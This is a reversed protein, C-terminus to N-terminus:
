AKDNNTWKNTRTKQKDNRQMKQKDNRLSASSDEEGTQQRMLELSGCHVGLGGGLGGGSGVGSRGQGRMEAAEDEGAEHACALGGDAAQEGGAEVPLKKVEVGVDFRAGAEGDGGDEGGVAFGVEALKLGGVEGGGKAAVVEDECEASSRGLDEGVAEEQLLGGGGGSDEEVRGEGREEVAAHHLGEVGRGVAGLGGGGARPRE